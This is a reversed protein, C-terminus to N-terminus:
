LTQTSRVLWLVRIFFESLLSLALGTTSASRKTYVCFLVIFLTELVNLLELRQGFWIGLLKLNNQPRIFDEVLSASQAMVQDLTGFARYTVRGTLLEACHTVLPSRAASEIRKIEQLPHRYLRFVYSAITAYISAPIVFPPM